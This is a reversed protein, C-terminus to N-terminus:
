PRKQGGLHDNRLIEVTFQIRRFPLCGDALQDMTNAPRNGIPANRITIKVLGIPLNKVIFQDPEAEVLVAGKIGRDPEVDPKEMLIADAAGGRAAIPKVIALGLGGFPGAGLVFEGLAAGAENLGHIVVHFADHMQGMALGHKEFVTGAGAGIEGRNAGAAFFEAAASTGAAGEGKELDIVLHGIDDFGAAFGAAGGLHIGQAIAVAVDLLENVGFLFLFLLGPGQDLLAVVAGVIAVGIATDHVLVFVEGDPGAIVEHMGGEGAFFPEGARHGASGQFLLIGGSQQM